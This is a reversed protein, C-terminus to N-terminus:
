PLGLFSSVQIDPARAGGKYILAHFMHELGLWRSVRPRPKEKMESFSSVPGFLTCVEQQGKCLRRM